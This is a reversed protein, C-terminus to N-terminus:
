QLNVLVLVLGQGGADLGTMAKGIVAGTARASDGVRMALGSTSSSTLLDGPEIASSAADCRVWVRGSLAVPPGDKSRDTNGMVTGAPLDGAGSVIGAVLTSYASSAVRLHGPNEPDIEMVTGPEIEQGREVPFREALDAGLVELVHVRATGNVDLRAQPTTTGLGVFGNDLIRMLSVNAVRQIDLGGHSGAGAGGIRIRAVDNAWSLAVSAGPNNPNLAAVDTNSVITGNVQLPWQPDNTGIGVNGGEVITMKVGTSDSFGLGSPSFLGKGYTISAVASGDDFVISGHTTVVGGSATNRLRIEPGFDHPGGLLNANRLLLKPQVDQITLRESSSAATGIGVNGASDVDLGRTTIAYPSRTVPQRPSLTNGNVNIELWRDANDWADSGFDLEVSFVGGTVDVTTTTTGLPTGGTAASYLRFTMSYSGDALSGTDKLSGQYTFATDGAAATVASLALSFVALAALIPRLRM